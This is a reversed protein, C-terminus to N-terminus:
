RRWKHIQTVFEVLVDSEKRMGLIQDELTDLCEDYLDALEQVAASV